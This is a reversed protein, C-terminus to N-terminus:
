AWQIKGLCSSSISGTGGANSGIFDSIPFSLCNATLDQNMKEWTDVEWGLSIREDRLLWLLRHHQLSLNNGTHVRGEENCSLLHEVFLTVQLKSVDCVSHIAM